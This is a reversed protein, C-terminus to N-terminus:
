KATPGDPTSRIFRDAWEPWLVADLTALARTLRRFAPIDGLGSLDRTSIV